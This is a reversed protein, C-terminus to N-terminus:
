EKCRLIYGKKRVTEININPDAKIYKRLHVMTVDLSRANFYNDETWLSQLLFTKDVINNRNDSLIKLVEFEKSALHFIQEDSILMQSVPDLTFKGISYIGKVSLAGTRRLMAKIHYLVFKLNYPKGIYFDAGAELAKCMTAEDYVSQMFIIGMAKSAWHIAKVIAFEGDDPRTACNFSDVIAIDFNLREIKEMINNKTAEEVLFNHLRLYLILDGANGNQYILVKYQM